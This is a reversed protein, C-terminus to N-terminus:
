LAKIYMPYDTILCKSMEFCIIGHIYSGSPTQKQIIANFTRFWMNNNSSIM